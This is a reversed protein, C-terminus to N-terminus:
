RYNRLLRIFEPYKDVIKVMEEYTYFTRNGTHLVCRGDKMIKFSSKGYMIGTYGEKSTYTMEKM